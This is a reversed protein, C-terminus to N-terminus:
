RTLFTIEGGQVLPFMILFLIEQWHLFEEGFFIPFVSFLKIILCVNFWVMIHMVPLRSYVCFSIEGKQKALYIYGMIYM